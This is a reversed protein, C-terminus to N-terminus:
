ASIGGVTYLREASMVCLVCLYWIGGFVALYRWIGGFVALYRWIGGFVALYRWIGGFVALYRWHPVLLSLGGLCHLCPSAPRLQSLVISCMRSSM